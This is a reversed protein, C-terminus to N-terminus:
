NIRMWCNKSVHIFILVSNNKNYSLYLLTIFDSYRSHCVTYVKIMRWTRQLRCQKSLDIHVFVLTLLSCHPLIRATHRENQTPTPPPTPAPPPPSLNVHPTIATRTNLGTNRCRGREYLQGKFFVSGNM